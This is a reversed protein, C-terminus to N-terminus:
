YDRSRSKSWFQENIQPTLLNAGLKLLGIALVKM